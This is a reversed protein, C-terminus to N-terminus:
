AMTQHFLTLVTILKNFPLEFLLDYEKRLIEKRKNRQTIQETIAQLFLQSRNQANSGINAPYNTNQLHYVFRM